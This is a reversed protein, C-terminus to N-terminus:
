DLHIKTDALHGYWFSKPQGKTARVIDESATEEWQQSRDRNYILVMRPGPPVREVSLQVKYIERKM